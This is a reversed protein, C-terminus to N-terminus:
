LAVSQGISSHGVHVDRRPSSGRNEPQFGLLRAAPQCPGNISKSEDNNKGILAPLRYQAPVEQKTSLRADTLVEGALIGNRGERGARGSM